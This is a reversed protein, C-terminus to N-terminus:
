RCNNLSRAIQPHTKDMTVWSSFHDLIKERQDRLLPILYIITSVNTVHNTVMNGVVGGMLRAGLGRYM